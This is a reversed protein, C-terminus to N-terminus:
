HALAPSQLSELQKKVRGLHSISIDDGLWKYLQQRIRDFPVDARLLEVILIDRLHNNWVRFVPVYVRLKKRNPQYAAKFLERWIFRYQESDVAVYIEFWAAALRQADLWDEFEDATMAEHTYSYLLVPMRLRRETRLTELKRWVTLFLEPGLHDAITKWHPPLPLSDVAKQLESASLSLELQTCNDLYGGGGTSVRTKRHRAGVGQDTITHHHLVPSINLILSRM